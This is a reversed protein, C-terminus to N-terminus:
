RSTAGAHASVADIAAGLEDLGDRLDAVLAPSTALDAAADDVYLALLEAVLDSGLDLESIASHDLPLDSTLEEGGHPAPATDDARPETALPAWRRMADMLVVTRLPKTLYDDMGGALCREREGKMSNATMAIIPIRTAGQERRRIERTTEYGDLVPMQCDMLVAAYSGTAWAELGARGNDAVAVPLRGERAHAGGRGSQRARGRRRPDASRRRQAPAGGVRGPAQAALDRRTRDHGGPDGRVPAIPPGAQHAHRRVRPESPVDVAVGASSLLVLRVDRWRRIPASRGPSSTDTSTRCASTWCSSRSQCGRRAGDELLTLAGAGSGAVQCSMQWSTLQCELIARNTANDDVVLVRLGALAPRELPAVAGAEVCELVVEFSFCSGEGPESVAGVTGGMLEILQRSIALGLGTGGYKRTTSDDAQSFPMFLTELADPTIGIGTDTVDVRVLAAGAGAPETGVRVVVEGEATFKIANRVLNAIVQRLRPPMEACSRRCMPISRLSSSSARRTREPPSCAALGSSRTACTSTTADLELKGAEIKSLDLIDNIVELLAEGSSSITEVYERQQDDLRTDLLLETMGIVGNMPTRIEHSVNAVFMSKAQSAAVAQDRTLALESLM